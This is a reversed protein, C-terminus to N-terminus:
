MKVKRAIIFAIKVESRPHHLGILHRWEYTMKLLHAQLQLPQKEINIEERFCCNSLFLSVWYRKWQFIKSERETEVGVVLAHLAVTQPCKEKTMQTIVVGRYSLQWHSTKFGWIITRSSSGSDAKQIRFSQTLYEGGLVFCLIGHMCVIVPKWWGIPVTISNPTWWGLFFSLFVAIVFNLSPNKRLHRIGLKLVPSLQVIHTTLVWNM